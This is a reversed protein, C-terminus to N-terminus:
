SALGFLADDLTHQETTTRSRTAGRSRRASIRDNHDWGGWVGEFQHTEFGVSRCTFQLPCGACLAKAEQTRTDDIFARPNKKCPTGGPVTACAEALADTAAQVEAATPANKM